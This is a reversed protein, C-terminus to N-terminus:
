KYHTINYYSIAFGRNLILLGTGHKSIEKSLDTMTASNIHFVMGVHQNIDPNIYLTHGGASM